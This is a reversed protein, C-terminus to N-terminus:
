EAARLVLLLAQAVEGPVAEPFWAGWVRLLLAAQDRLEPGAAAGLEELGERTLGGCLLRTVVLWRSDEPDHGRAEELAAAASSPDGAALALQLHHALEELSSVAVGSYVLHPSYCTRHCLQLIM